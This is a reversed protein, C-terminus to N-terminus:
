VMQKEIVRNLRMQMRNKKRILDIGCETLKQCEILAKSKYYVINTLEKQIKLKIM